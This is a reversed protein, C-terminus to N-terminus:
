AAVCSRPKRFARPPQWANWKPGLQRPFDATLHHMQWPVMIVCMRAGTLESHTTPVAKLYIFGYSVGSCRASIALFAAALRRFRVCSSQAAQDEVPPNLRKTRETRKVQRHSTHSINEEM